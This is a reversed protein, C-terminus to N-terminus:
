PPSKVKSKGNSSGIRASARTSTTPSGDVEAAVAGSDAAATAAADPAKIKRARLLKARLLSARLQLERPDPPRAEEEEV